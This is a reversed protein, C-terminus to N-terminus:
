LCKVIHSIYRSIEQLDWLSYMHYSLTGDRWQLPLSHVSSVPAVRRRWHANRWYSWSESLNSKPIQHSFSIPFLSRLNGALINKVYKSPNKSSTINIQVLRLIKRPIDLWGSLYWEAHLLITNKLMYMIYLITSINHKINTIHKKHEAMKSFSLLLRIKTEHVTLMIILSIHVSILNRRHIETHVTLTM